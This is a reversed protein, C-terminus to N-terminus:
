KGATKIIRAAPKPPKGGEWVGSILPGVPDLPDEEGGFVEATLARLKKAVDHDMKLKQRPADSDDATKKSKRPKPGKTAASSKELPTTEGDAGLEEVIVEGKKLPKAADAPAKRKGFVPLDDSVFGIKAVRM